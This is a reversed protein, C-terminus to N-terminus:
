SQNNGAPENKALGQEFETVLKQAEEAGDVIAKPLSICLTFTQVIAEAVLIDSKLKLLDKHEWVAPDSLKSRANSLMINTREIFGQLYSLYRDWNPNGTLGRMVPSAGALIRAMPLFEVQRQHVKDANTATFEDRDFAM